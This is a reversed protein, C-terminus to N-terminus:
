DIKICVVEADDRVYANGYAIAPAQRTKGFLKARGLEVYGKTTAKVMVFEGKMTTIWLIGDAAVLNAKGFRNQRWITEGTAANVCSLHTVPGASGVNDFGFLHGDLLVSNQWENRMVSKTDISQWAEKVSFTQNSKTVELMVCGHNEGASIFVKGGVAVPTATNCDYPTQFPYEWLVEGDAARIGVAGLGTFTVLQREGAITLLAPSSYGPTGNVARWRVEGSEKDVAVVASQNGGATVVVLGDVVLPSAAMGYEAPKGGKSFVSTSWLQRGDSLNLCALIGQGTFAFVQDEDIAPTARPGDGMSNEYNPAVVTKWKLEGTKADMVAVAQGNDSNWMTVALQKAVAVGSMGVGGPVRWLVNPGDAPWTQILGDAPSIGNRNPGLFQPWGDEAAVLGMWPQVAIALLIPLLFVRCMM